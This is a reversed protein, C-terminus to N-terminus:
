KAIRNLRETVRKFGLININNNKIQRQQREAELMYSGINNM